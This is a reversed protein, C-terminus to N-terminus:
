KNTNSSEYAIERILLYTRSMYLLRSWSLILPIDSSLIPPLTLTNMDDDRSYCCVNIHHGSLECRGSASSCELAPWFVDLRRWRGEQTRTSQYAWGELSAAWCLRCMRSMPCDPEPSRTPPQQRCRMGLKCNQQLHEVDSCRIREIHEEIRQLQTIWWSKKLHPCIYVHLTQPVMSNELLSWPFILGTFQQNVLWLITMVIYRRTANRNIHM